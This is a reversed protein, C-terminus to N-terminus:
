NFRKPALRCDRVLLIIHRHYIDNTVLPKLNYFRKEVIEFELLISKWTQSM